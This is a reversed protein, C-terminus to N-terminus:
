NGGIANANYNTLNDYLEPLSTVVLRRGAASAEDNLASPLTEQLGLRRDPGASIILPVWYTSPTQLLFESNRLTDTPNNIAKWVNILRNLPDDPDMQFPHVTSGVATMNIAPVLVRRAEDMLALETSTPETLNGDNSYDEFTLDVMGDRNADEGLWFLRTPARYFRLPEGWTDVLYRIAANGNATDLEEVYENPSFTEEDVTPTGYTPGATLMVYLCAASQRQMRREYELPNGSANQIWTRINAYPGQTNDVAVATVPHFVTDPFARRMEFKLALIKGLEVTSVTGNAVLAQAERSFDRERVAEMRQVVINSATQITRRTADIRGVSLYNALVLVFSSLVLGIIGVVVLLEILTFGGPRSRSPPAHRQM